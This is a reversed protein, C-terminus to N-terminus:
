KQAATFDTPLKACRYLISAMEARTMSAKPNFKGKQDGGMLGSQQIAAVANKAWSSISSNDAFVIGTSGTQLLSGTKQAYATLIVAIEERSVATDPEFQKNGKGRVIEMKYAWEIYPLSPSGSKVDKFSSTTYSRIDMGQQRGLATVPMGRTVVANPSFTSESTGPLIGKSVVYDISEKAWHNSIDTFKTIPSQYAAAYVSFHYAPWTICQNAADYYSEQIFSIKGQDDIYAAHLNEIYEGVALTYPLSVFVPSQPRFTVSKTQGGQSYAISFDYAPRQDVLARAEASLNEAPTVTITIDGGTQKQLEKLKELSFRLSIRLGNIELYEAQAEILKKLVVQTLVVKFSAASNPVDLSVAVGFSNAAGPEKQAAQAKRIAEAIAAEPIVAAVRDNQKLSTKLIFEAEIPQHIEQHIIISIVPEVAPSSSSSSSSGGGSGSGGNGIYTFSATITVANEPMTFTTHSSHADAFTGGNSSTWSRFQYGSNPAATINIVADKAYNGGLSSTISGGAGATLTLAYTTPVAPVDPTWKAYLITNNNVATSATFQVGAGNPETYWGEFIYGTQTPNAPWNISGIATGKKVTQTSYDADNNKFTVTMEEEFIAKVTVAESPMVFEDGTIVLSAPSVVQWAKFFCNSNPVASLKVTKGAESLSPSATGIGNGDNQVTVTYKEAAWKAYVTTNNNVATSATFQVGAGDPETYWGEFVYGTQTPNAPWNTSGVVEGKKVTQTSYDANDNKFTVTWGEEFIAKVTVAESPMIFEDNTIVLSAPSILQWEKFVYNSNPVAGVKVTESAESLSPTAAGTGNGDNQVTVTYTNLLSSAPSSTLIPYGKNIHSTDAEWVFYTKGAELAGIGRNLAQVFAKKTDGTVATNGATNYTYTINNGSTSGQMVEQSLRCSTDVTENFLDATGLLDTNQRIQGNVKQEASSNWYVNINKFSGNRRGAFGGVIADAGGSVSGAAYCNLINAIVGGAFSGVNCPQDIGASDGGSVDGIAYCNQIVGGVQGAFGGIASSYNKSAGEGKVDGKAYCNYIFTSSYCYGVFGGARAGVGGNVSCETGCNSINGENYGVVGGAYSAVGGEVHGTTNCNSVNSSSNYGLLAGVVSQDGGYVAAGIVETNTVSGGSKLGFLGVCAYTAPQAASGITMGNIEYNNGDFTGEFPCAFEAGIPTWYHASLDITNELKFSASKYAANGQNVMQAMFALDGATQILYPNGATGSGLLSGSAFDAWNGSSVAAATSMTLLMGSTICFTSSDVVNQSDELSTIRIKYDDGAALDKPVQWIYSGSSKPVAAQTPVLDCITQINATGKILEIKVATDTTSDITWTINQSSGVSWDAGGIPSTVTIAANGGSYTDEAQLGIPFIGTLMAITCILALLKRRVKKKMKNRGWGNKIVNRNHRARYGNDESNTLM